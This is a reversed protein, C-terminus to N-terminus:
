TPHDRKKIAKKNEDPIIDYIGDIIKKRSHAWESIFNVIKFLRTATKIDDNLDMKLSHAAEGGIVRVSDLAKVMDEDLGQKVLKKIKGHLNLNGTIKEDCIKEVCLRLLVCASRPSQSVVNRAENYHNKVDETMDPNALEVNGILPFIIKEEKWITIDHCRQCCGVSYNNTTIYSNNYNKKIGTWLQTSYANCHPCNFADLSEIPQVFNIM